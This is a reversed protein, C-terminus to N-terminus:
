DPPLGDRVDDFSQFPRFSIGARQCHRVLSRRAFVLDAAEAACRDAAGDGVAAVRWGAGQLERVVHGKCFGCRGCDLAGSGHFAVELGRPSCVAANTRLDIWARLEEPLRALVPAIYLDLGASCLVFPRGADRCGSLFREFGPRLVARSAAFAAIEEPAATIPQFIRRLLESFPLVGARYEDEAREWWERGAFRIAVQDGIDETTVTGDFDCVVAWGAAAAGKRRASM